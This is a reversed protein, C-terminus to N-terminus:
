CGLQLYKLISFYPFNLIGGETTDQQPKWFQKIVDFPLEKDLTVRTFGNQILM